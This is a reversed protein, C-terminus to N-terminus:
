SCSTSEPQVAERTRTIRCTADRGRILRGLRVQGSRVQTAIIPFRKPAYPQAALEPFRLHLRAALGQM